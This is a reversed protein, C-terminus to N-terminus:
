GRGGDGTGKDVAGTGPVHELGVVEVRRFLARVSLRLLGRLSRYLVM